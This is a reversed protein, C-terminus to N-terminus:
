APQTSALGREVAWIAVQARSRVGLKNLVHTVHAEATRQSIVLEDAIERNSRGRGILRVVEAERTTLLAGITRDSPTESACASSCEPATLSLEVAEELPLLRGEALGEEFAAAGLTAKASARGSTDTEHEEHTLALGLADRLAEAAGFLRAARASDLPTFFVAQSELCAAVDRRIGLEEGVQVGEARLAASQSAEGRETALRALHHLSCFRSGAVTLRLGVEAEGRELCWRSAARFNDQERALEQLHNDQSPGGCVADARDVVAVCWDRHRCRLAVEEQAERLRELGYQRLTELLRYRARGAHQEVMVLSHDVLHMVLEVVARTSVIGGGCVEEAAELSWDGAFVSVRRFLVQAPAPLLDYSWDIAGRLTKQRLLATRNGGTLLQFRDDLRAAIQEIGMSGVRTAALEIALPMGDLRLCVQAVAHATSDTLAFTPLAATARDMFLHVAECAAIEDTGGAVESPLSLSPVRWTTEGAVGLRQRSTALIRLRPCERLLRDTLTACADVLHECNDLVLLAHEVKLRHVLESQATIGVAEAVANAIQSEDELAALEVFWVGDTFRDACRAAVEIALRTKGCGGTGTLTVLRAADLLKELEPMQQERGVFSTLQVPLNHHAVALNEGRIV